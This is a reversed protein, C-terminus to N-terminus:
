VAKLDGVGIRQDVYGPQQHRVQITLFRSVHYFIGIVSPVNWHCFSRPVYDPAPRPDDMRDHPM